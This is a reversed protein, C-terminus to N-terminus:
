RRKKCGRRAPLQLPPAVHARARALAKESYAELPEACFCGEEKDRDLFRVDVLQKGIFGTVCAVRAHASFVVTDGVAFAFPAVAQEQDADVKNNSPETTAISAVVVMGDEDDDDSSHGDSPAAVLERLLSLRSRALDANALRAWSADVPQPISNSM